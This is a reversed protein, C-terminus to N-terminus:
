RRARRDFHPLVTSRDRSHRSRVTLLRQGALVGDVEGAPGLHEM